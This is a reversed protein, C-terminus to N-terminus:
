IVAIAEIEVKVDKPLRAVQVAARAPQNITFYSAYVENVSVFDGMDALFVTTKAVDKLEAGSAALVAQLNKLCQEAQEAATNGVIKGGDPDLPIQGSCFIMIQGSMKVAQSYPGIAEPAKSTQVVEKM